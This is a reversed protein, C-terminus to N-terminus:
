AWVGTSRHATSRLAFLRLWDSWAMSFVGVWRLSVRVGHIDWAEVRTVQLYYCNAGAFRFTCGDLELQLGRVRVFEGPM